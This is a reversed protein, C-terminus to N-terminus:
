TNIRKEYKNKNENLTICRHWFFKLYNPVNYHQKKFERWLPYEIPLSIIFVLPSIIIQFLKNM